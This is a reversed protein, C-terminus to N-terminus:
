SYDWGRVLGTSKPGTLKAHPSDPMRPALESFRTFQRLHYRFAALKEYQAKGLRPDAHAKSRAAMFIELM